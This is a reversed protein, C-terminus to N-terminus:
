GLIVEMDKPFAREWADLRAKGVGRRYAIQGKWEVWLVDVWKFTTGPTLRPYALNNESYISNRSKFHIDCTFHSWRPITAECVAMLCCEPGTTGLFEYTVGGEHRMLNGVRQDSGDMLGVTGLSPEPHGAFRFTATQVRAYLFPEWTSPAPPQVSLSNTIPFPHSVRGESFGLEQLAVNEPHLSSKWGPLSGATGEEANLWVHYTNNIVELQGTVLNKPM